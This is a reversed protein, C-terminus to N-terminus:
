EKLQPFPNAVPTAARKALGAAEFTRNIEEQTVGQAKAIKALLDMQVWEYLARKSAKTASNIVVYLILANFFIAVGAIVYLDTNM